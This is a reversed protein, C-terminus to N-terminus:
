PDAGACGPLELVPGDIGHIGFDHELRKKITGTNRSYLHSLRVARGSYEAILQRPPNLHAELLKLPARQKLLGEPANRVPRSVVPSSVRALAARYEAIREDARAHFVVYCSFPEVPRLDDHLVPFVSRKLEIAQM